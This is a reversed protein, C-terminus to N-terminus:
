RLGRKQNVTIFHIPTHFYGVSYNKEHFKTYHPTFSINKRSRNALSLQNAIMFM